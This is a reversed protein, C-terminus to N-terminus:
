CVVRSEIGIALLRDMKYKCKRIAIWESSFWIYQFDLQNYRMIGNEIM